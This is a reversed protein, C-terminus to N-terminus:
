NETSTSSTAEINVLKSEVLAVPQSSSETLNILAQGRAIALSNVLTILWFTYINWLWQFYATTLGTGFDFFLEPKVLKQGIDTRRTKELIKSCIM